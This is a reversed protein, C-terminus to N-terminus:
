RNGQNKCKIPNCKQQRGEKSNEWHDPSALMDLWEWVIIHAKALNRDRLRENQVKCLALFKQVIEFDDSGNSDNSGISINLDANQM